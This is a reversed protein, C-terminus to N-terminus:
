FQVCVSCVVAKITVAQLAARAVPTHSLANFFAGCNFFTVVKQQRLMKAVALKQCIKFHHAALSVNFGQSSVNNV